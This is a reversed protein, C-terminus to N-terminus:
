SCVRLRQELISCFPGFLFSGLPYIGSKQPLSYTLHETSYCYPGEFGGPSVTLHPSDYSSNSVGQVDSVAAQTDNHWLKALSDSSRRGSASLLLTTSESVNVTPTIVPAHPM